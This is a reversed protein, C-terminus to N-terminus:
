APKWFQEHIVMGEDELIPGIVEITESGRSFVERSSLDLGGGVLKILRASSCGFVVREFGQWYIAGSCMACPETSTYLTCRKLVESDLTQSARRVLNLEAHATVDHDTGVTNEATLLVEGNYVLLAGFPHNGKAVAQEALQFCARIYHEHSNEMLRM